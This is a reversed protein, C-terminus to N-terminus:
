VCSLGKLRDACLKDEKQTESESRSAATGVGYGIRLQNYDVGSFIFFLFQSLECEPYLLANM